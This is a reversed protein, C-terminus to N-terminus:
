EGVLSPSPLFSEAKPVPAKGSRLLSPVHYASSLYRHFEIDLHTCPYVVHNYM